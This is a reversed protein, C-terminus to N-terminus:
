EGDMEKLLNDIRALYIVRSGKAAKLKKLRKAFEKRAESKIRCESKELLEQFAIFSGGRNKLEVRLDEIEEKLRNILDLSAKARKSACGFGYTNAPCEDCSKDSEWYACCELAKIIENDTM